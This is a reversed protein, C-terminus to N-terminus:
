FYTRHLITGSHLHSTVSELENELKAVMERYGDVVKELNDIREKQIMLQNNGPQATSAPNMCITLDKEYSDLQKRYSDRERSVLTLKKQMRHILNQQKQISIQHLTALKKNKDSETQSVSKEQM